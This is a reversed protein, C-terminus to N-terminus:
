NHERANKLAISYWKLETLFVKIRNLYERNKPEGNAGFANKIDTFYIAKRILVIRLEISVGCIGLPKRAYQKSLLDLMM